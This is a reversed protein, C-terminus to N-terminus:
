RPWNSFHKRVLGFKETPGPLRHWVIDDPWRLWDAVDLPRGGAASLAFPRYNRAFFFRLMDEINTRDADTTPEVQHSIDRLTDDRTHNTHHTRMLTWEMFVYSVRIADFLAGAHQFARHEYGQSVFICRTSIALFIWDNSHCHNPM